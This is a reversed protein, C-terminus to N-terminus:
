ERSRGHRDKSPLLTASVSSRTRPETRQQLQELDSLQGAIDVDGADAVGIFLIAPWNLSPASNAFAVATKLWGRRDRFTKRETFHDEGSQLRALLKKMRCNIM